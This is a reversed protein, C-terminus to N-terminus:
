TKALSRTGCSIESNTRSRVVLPVTKMSSTNASDMTRPVASSAIATSVRVTGIRSGILAVYSTSGIASPTSIIREWIIPRSM